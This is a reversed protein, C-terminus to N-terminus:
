KCSQATTTASRAEEYYELVGDLLPTWRRALADQRAQMALRQRGPEDNLLRLAQAAFSEASGSTAMLGNINLKVLETVGGRDAVIPALGSAMAELVVNGFTETDSPFLFIDGAAYVRALEAGQLHGTFSVGAPARARLRSLSPGIGVIVLAVRHMTSSKIRVFADLLLDVRKETAIRGVFLLIYDAGPALKRRTDETRHAPDFREADVGRPWLRLDGRFGHARLRRIYYRSPCLTLSADRHCARMWRWTVPALAGFGWSEFFAPFDSHSSTILPIGHQRAFRRGSWGVAFETAVHVVDPKFARLTALDVRRPGWAARSERIFPVPTCPLEITVDVGTTPPEFPAPAIMAVRWGRLKLHGVLRDLTFAVGNFEPRATDTFIAVRGPHRKLETADSM